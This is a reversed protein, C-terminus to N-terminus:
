RREAAAVGIEQMNDWGDVPRLAALVARRVNKDDSPKYPERLRV